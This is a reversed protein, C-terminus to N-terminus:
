NWDLNIGNPNETLGQNTPEAPKKEEVAPPECAKKCLEKVIPSVVEIRNFEQEVDNMFSHFTRIDYDSLKDDPTGMIKVITTIKWKQCQGRQGPETAYRKLVVDQARKYADAIETM